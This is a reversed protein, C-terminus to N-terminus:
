EGKEEAERVIIEISCAAKIAKLEETTAERIFFEYGEVGGDEDYIPKSDLLKEIAKIYNPKSTM